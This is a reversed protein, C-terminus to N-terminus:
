RLLNLTESILREASSFMRSNAQYGRQYIIMETFETSLDVTSRELAAGKIRGRRATDPLGIDPTGTTDSVNYLNNGIARLGDKNPFTALAIAGITARTGNDLVAVINGDEQIDYNIVSGVQVGDQTVSSVASPAAYQTFGTLSIDFNGATSGNLYPPTVNLTANAVSADLLNGNTDYDLTTTGLLFPVDETGGTVDAGNIYSQATWSNNATKTYAMVITHSTGLSDIVEFSSIFNSAQNLEQFTQPNNPVALAQSTADLNGVMTAATTAEAEADFELLNLTGLTTSPQGNVVSYGLVNKGEVNVLIGSPDLTFSGARTYFQDTTSGVVFFGEGEVAADLPRGTPEIPGNVHITRVNQVKAGNGPSEISGTQGDAEALLNEFESRSRKFANTNVNAVNNGIITLAQGHADLGTASILLSSEIRM